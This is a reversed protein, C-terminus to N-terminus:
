ANQLESHKSKTDFIDKQCQNLEDEYPQLVAQVETQSVIHNIENMCVPCTDGKHLKARISQCLEKM